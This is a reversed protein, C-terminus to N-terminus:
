KTRKKLLKEWDDISFNKNRSKITKQIQRTPNEEAHAPAGAGKKRSAKSAEVARLQTLAAERSKPNKSLRKGKSSAAYFGGKTKQIM